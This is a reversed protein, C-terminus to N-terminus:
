NTTLRLVPARTMDVFGSDPYPFVHRSEVVAADLNPPRPGITLAMGQSATLHAANTFPPRLELNGAQAYFTGSLLSSNGPIQVAFPVHGPLDTRTPTTLWSTLTLEPLVHLFCGPAGIPDLPAGFPQVGLMLFAPTGPQGWTFVHTTSGVVLTHPQAGAGRRGGGAYQGCGVGIPQVSGHAGSDEFFDVPWLESGPVVETGDMEVCLTGGRYVFPTSFPFTVVHAPLWGAADRHALAPSSPYDIEGQFVSAAPSAHNAAFLPQARSPAPALDSIRLAIRSRGGNLALPVQGDRRVTLSTIPRALTLLHSPGILTQLRFTGRVGPLSGGFNGDLSAASAPVTVVSQAVAGTALLLAISVYQQM